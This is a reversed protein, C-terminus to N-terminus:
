IFFNPYSDNSFNDNSEKKVTNTTINKNEKNINNTRRSNNNSGNRSITESGFAKALRLMSKVNGVMPKAQKILPITQNVVNLTKNAGSLLGSWNFSRLGSGIRGFLGMGGPAMAQARMIPAFAMNPMMMRGPNM